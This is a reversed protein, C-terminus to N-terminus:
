TLNITGFVKLDWAQRWRGEDIERLTGRPIAGASNVLIDVDRCAAAVAKVSDGNSLDAPHAVTDVKHDTKIQDAVKQLEAHRRAVLHVHCGEQALSRAIALGIGKSAGTVLATRGRLNLEM